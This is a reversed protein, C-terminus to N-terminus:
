FYFVNDERIITDKILEFFYKYSDVLEYKRKVFDIFEESYEEDTGLKILYSIREIYAISLEDLIESNTLKEIKKKFDEFRKKYGSDFHIQSNVLVFNTDKSKQM